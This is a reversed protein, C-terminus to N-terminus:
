VSRFLPPTVVSRKESYKVCVNTHVTATDDKATTNWTSPPDSMHRLYLSSRKSPAIGQSESAQFAPMAYAVSTYLGLSAIYLKRCLMTPLLLLLHGRVNYSQEIRIYPIASCFASGPSTAFSVKRPASLLITAAMMVVVDSGVM